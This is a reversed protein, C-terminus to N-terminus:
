IIVSSLFLKSDTWHQAFVSFASVAACDCLHERTTMTLRPKVCIHLRRKMSCTVFLSFTNPRVSPMIIILWHNLSRQHQGVGATIVDTMLLWVSPPYLLSATVKSILTLSIDQLLNTLNFIHPCSFLSSKSPYGEQSVSFSNQQQLRQQEVDCQNRVNFM